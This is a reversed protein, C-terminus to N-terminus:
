GGEFFCRMLLVFKEELYWRFDVLCTLAYVAVVM